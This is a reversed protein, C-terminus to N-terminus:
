QGSQGPASCSPMLREIWGFHHRRDAVIRYAADVVHSVVPAALLRAAGPGLAEALARRLAPGASHVVGNTEAVHLTTRREAEPLLALLPDADPRNFDLLVLRNGRDLRRM